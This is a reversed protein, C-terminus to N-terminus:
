GEELFAIIAPLAAPDQQLFRHGGEFLRLRADRIRSAMAEQRAPPAQGDYRGGAILVPCAINGLRDWTDHLARAALQRRAGEARGAEGAFPDAM